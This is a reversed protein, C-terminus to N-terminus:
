RVRTKGIVYFTISTSITSISKTRNTSFNKGKSVGIIEILNAKQLYYLYSYLTNRSVGASRALNQINLEMPMSVYLLHLLKRITGIKDRDIRYIMAIESDLIINVSENLRLNYGREGETFFPYVGFSKFQNFYELPKFRNRSDM